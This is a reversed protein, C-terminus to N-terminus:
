TLWFIVLASFLGIAAGMYVEAPEHGMSVDVGGQRTRALIKNLALGQEGSSLRLTMADYLVLTSFCASIAFVASDFGNLLGVMSSVAVVVASHSSPMDGSRTFIRISFDERRSVAIVLKILKNILVAVIVAIFYLWSNM